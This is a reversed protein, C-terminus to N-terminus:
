SFLKYDSLYNVKTSSRNIGDICAERSGELTEKLLVAKSTNEQPLRDALLLRDRNKKQQYGAKQLNYVIEGKETVFVTGAFTNAYFRVTQDKVQGQNEIFPMQLRTAKQIMTQRDPGVHAFASSALIGSLLFIGMAKLVIYRTSMKFVEKLCAKYERNRREKSILLTVSNLGTLCGTTIFFPVTGKKM